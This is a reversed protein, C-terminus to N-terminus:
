KNINMGSVELGGVGGASYQLVCQMAWVALEKNCTTCIVVGQFLHRPLVYREM